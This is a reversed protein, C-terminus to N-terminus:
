PGGAQPTAVRVFWKGDIESRVVTKKKTWSPAIIVKSDPKAMGWLAVDSQQQLVMNDGIVSPLTVKAHVHVVAACLIM